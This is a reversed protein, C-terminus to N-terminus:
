RRKLGPVTSEQRSEDVAASRGASSVRSSMWWVSGGLGVDDLSLEALLFFLHVTQEGLHFPVSVVRVTTSTDESLSVFVYPQEPMERYLDVRSGVVGLPAKILYCM